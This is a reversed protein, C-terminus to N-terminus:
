RSDICTMYVETRLGSRKGYPPTTFFAAFIANPAHEQRAASGAIKTAPRTIKPVAFGGWGSEETVLGNIAM